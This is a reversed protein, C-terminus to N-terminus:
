ELERRRWCGSNPLKLREVRPAEKRSMTFTVLTEGYVSLLGPKSWKVVCPPDAVM